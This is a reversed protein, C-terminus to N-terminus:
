ADARVGGSMPLRIMMTTGRGVQSTATITGGCAEINRRANALGLGSGGTKTSFHPEFARALAEETMGHGDDSVSITIEPPTAAAVLRLEGGDPMAQLANEVLNTLARALFTKDARVPPLGAPVTIDIRTHAALGPRYPRVVEQLLDSVPEDVFTPDPNAAFNAFENAIQRLLKVQKLVTNVCQDFVQGLPRQQDEHVRQLHEAALQIPTLPNKIDHAVQRSM